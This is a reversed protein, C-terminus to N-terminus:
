MVPLQAQQGKARVICVNSGEHDFTLLRHDEEHECIM